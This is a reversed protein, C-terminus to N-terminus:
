HSQHQRQRPLSQSLQWCFCRESNPQRRYCCADQNIMSYIITFLYYVHRAQINKNLVIPSCNLRPKLSKDKCSASYVRENKTDM